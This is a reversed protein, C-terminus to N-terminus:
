KEIYFDEGSVWRLWDSLYEKNPTMTSGWLCGFSPKNFMECCYDNGNFDSLSCFKSKDIESIGAVLIRSM